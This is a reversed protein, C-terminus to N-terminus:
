KGGCLADANTLLRKMEESKCALKVSALKMGGMDKYGKCLVAKKMMSVKKVDTNFGGLTKLAGACLTTAPKANTTKKAGGNGSGAPKTTTDAKKGGCPADANTGM